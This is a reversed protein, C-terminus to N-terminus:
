EKSELMPYKLLFDDEEGKHFHITQDEKIEIIFHIRRLLQGQDEQLGYWEEPKYCSTIFIDSAKLQASSCKVEVIM